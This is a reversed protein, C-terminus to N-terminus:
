KQINKPTHHALADTIPPGQRMCVFTEYLIYLQKIPAAMGKSLPAAM